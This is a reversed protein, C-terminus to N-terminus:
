EFQDVELDNFENRKSNLYSEYQDMESESLEGREAREIFEIEEDSLNDDFGGSLSRSVEEKVEPDDLDYTDMDEDHHTQRYRKTPTRRKTVKNKRKPKFKKAKIAQAPKRKVQEGNIINKSTPVKVKRIAVKSSNSDDNFSSNFSNFATFLVFVFSLAFGVYKFNFKEFISDFISSKIDEQNTNKYQAIKAKEKQSVPQIQQGKDNGSGIFALGVIADETDKAKAQNNITIADAHSHDLVEEAPSFPLEEKNKLLRRDFEHHEFLKIWTEGKDISAQINLPILKQAAMEKVEQLKYPGKKVGQILLYFSDITQLGHLSVLKPKRRQFKTNQFFPKEKETALNFAFYGEFLEQHEQAAVKITETDFPGYSTGQDDKVLWLDFMGINHEAIHEESLPALSQLPKANEMLTEM